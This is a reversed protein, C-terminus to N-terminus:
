MAQNTKMYRELRKMAAMDKLYHINTEPRDVYMLKNFKQENIFLTKM